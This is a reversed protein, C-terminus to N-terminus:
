TGQLAMPHLAPDSFWKRVEGLLASPDGRHDFGPFRNASGELTLETKWTDQM